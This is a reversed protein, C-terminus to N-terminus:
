KRKKERKCSQKLKGHPCPNCEKCNNKDKGHLCMKRMPAMGECDNQKADGLADQAGTRQAGRVAASM